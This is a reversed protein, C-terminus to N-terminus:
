TNEGVAVDQSQTIEKFDQDFCDRTVSLGLVANIFIYVGQAM